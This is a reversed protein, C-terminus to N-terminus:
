APRQQGYTRFKELVRAMEDDDLVRLPPHPLVRLYLEAMEEVTVALALARELTHHAALVGHHAMLCARRGRLAQVVAQSLEETGFTAYRAIPITSGGAAAVMYHVAPIEHGLVAVATACPSHTHVIADFEPRERLVDRHFRWESSPLVDGEFRGDWHMRVVQDPSLTAYDMGTPSVYFGGEARVSANGATGRALGLAAMRRLTDVIARRASADDM